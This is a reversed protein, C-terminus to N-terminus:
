VFFLKAVVCWTQRDALRHKDGDIRRGKRGVSFNVFRMMNTFRTGAVKGGLFFSGTGVPCSTPHCGTGAKFRHLVAEAVSLISLRVGTM